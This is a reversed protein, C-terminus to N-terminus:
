RFPEPYKNYDDDLNDLDGRGFEIHTASSDIFNAHFSTSLMLIPMLRSQVRGWRAHYVLISVDDSVQVGNLPIDVSSNDVVDFCRYCM